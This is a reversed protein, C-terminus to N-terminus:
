CHFGGCSAPDPPGFGNNPLVPNVRYGVQGPTLGPPDAQSPAYYNYTHARAASAKAGHQTAASSPAVVALSGAVTVAAAIACNMLLRGQLVPRAPNKSMTRTRRGFLLAGKQGAADARDFIICRSIHM